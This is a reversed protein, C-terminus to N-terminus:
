VFNYSPKSKIKTEVIKKSAELYDIGQLVTELMGPSSAKYFKGGTLSAISELLTQDFGGETIVEYLM